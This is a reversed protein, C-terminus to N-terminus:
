RRRKRIEVCLLLSSTLNGLFELPYISTLPLYCKLGLFQFADQFPLLQYGAMVQLTRIDL